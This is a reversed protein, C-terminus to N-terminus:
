EGGAPALLNMISGWISRSTQAQQRPTGERFSNSVDLKRMEAQSPTRSSVESQSRVKDAAKPKEASRAPATGKAFDGPGPASLRVMSSMPENQDFYVELNQIQFKNNLTAYAFGTMSVVENTPQATMRLGNHLPCTLPGTM